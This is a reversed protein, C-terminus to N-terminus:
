SYHPITLFKAITGYWIITSASGIHSEKQDVVALRAKYGTLLGDLTGFNFYFAKSIRNFSNTARAIGHKIEDHGIEHHRAQVPDRHDLPKTPQIRISIDRCDHHRQLGIM